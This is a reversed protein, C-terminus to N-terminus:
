VNCIMSSRKHQYSNMCQVRSVEERPIHASRMIGIRQWSITWCCKQSCYESNSSYLIRYFSTVNIISAIVPYYPVPRCSVAAIYYIGKHTQINSVLYVNFGFGFLLLHKMRVTLNKTKHNKIQDKPNPRCVWSPLFTFFFHFGFHSFSISVEATKNSLCKNM